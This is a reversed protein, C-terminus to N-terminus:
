TLQGGAFDTAEVGLSEILKQLSKPMKKDQAEDNSDGFLPPSPEPNKAQKTSQDSVPSDGGLTRKLFEQFEPTLPNKSFRRHTGRSVGRFIHNPLQSKAVTRIFFAMKLYDGCSDIQLM